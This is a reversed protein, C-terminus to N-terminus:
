HAGVLATAGSVAVNRGFYASTSGDIALLKSLQEGGWMYELSLESVYASGRAEDDGRAGVLVTSGDLAVSWGFEDNAAGDSPVLKARELWVGGLNTPDAATFM